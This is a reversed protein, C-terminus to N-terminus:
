PVCTGRFRAEPMVMCLLRPLVMRLQKKFMPGVSFISPWHKVVKLRHRVRYFISRSGKM